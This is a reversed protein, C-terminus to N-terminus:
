TINKMEIIAVAKKMTSIDLVQLGNWLLDNSRMAKRTVKKTMPRNMTGTMDRPTSRIVM